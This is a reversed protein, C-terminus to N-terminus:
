INKGAAFTIVYIDLAGARLLEKSCSNLTSGTTYIDDVLLIKKARIKEPTLVQFANKMNIKREEKSLKSQTVTDKVRVLNKRDMPWGTKRSIYRGIMESQNFERKRKKGAYLPVPIIWDIQGPNKEKLKAIMMEAIPYALYRQKGYKLRYILTKIEGDYAVCTYGQTFCHKSMSCDHCVTPLYLEELPKGCKECSKEGAFHIGKKCSVCLSYPETKEIPEGCLICEINRPYVFDLLGDVLDWLCKHGEM